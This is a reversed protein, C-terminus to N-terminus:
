FRGCIRLTGDCDMCNLLITYRGIDDCHYFVTFHCSSCVCRTLEEPPVKKTSNEGETGARRDGYCAPCMEQRFQKTHLNSRPWLWMGSCGQCKIYFTIESEPRQYGFEPISAMAVDKAFETEEGMM